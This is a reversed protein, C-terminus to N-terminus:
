MQKYLQGPSYDSRNLFPYLWNPKKFGHDAARKSQWLPHIFQPWVRRPKLGLHVDQEGAFRDIEAINADSGIRVARALRREILSPTDMDDTVILVPPPPPPENLTLEACLFCLEEVTADFESDQPVSTVHFTKQRKAAPLPREDGTWYGEDSLPSRTTAM